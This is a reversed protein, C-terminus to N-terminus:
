EGCFLSSEAAQDPGAPWLASACTTQPGTARSTAYFRGCCASSRSSPPPSSQQAPLQALVSGRFTQLWDAMGSPLPTPRPILTIEEVLFGHSELLARYEATNFFLNNEIREAPIGTRDLCWCRWASRPSTARAAVSPWSAAARSSRGTGGALVADQDAMWHLAANSFVADFEQEFSLAEGSGCRADVGRELAAAIM